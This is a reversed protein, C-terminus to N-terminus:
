RRAVTSLRARDASRRRETTVRYMAAAGGGATGQDGGSGGSSSSSSSFGVAQGIQGLTERLPSFALVIGIAFVACAVAMAPRLLGYKWKSSQPGDHGPEDTGGRVANWRRVLDALFGGSAAAKAHKSAHAPGAQVRARIRELGDPRPDVQDAAAHLARRLYEAFEPGQPPIGDHGPRTM